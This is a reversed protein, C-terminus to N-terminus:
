SFLYPRAQEVSLIRARTARCYEVIWRFDDPHTDFRGPSVDVGHTYFILWGGNSCCDDVLSRVDDRRLQASYLNVSRLCALDIVGRNIGRRIARLSKYCPRLARKAGVTVAGLPYSFDELACGLGEEFFARNRQADAFGQAATVSTLPHHSFTHCGIQHGRQQLARCDEISLHDRRAGDRAADGAFTAAVYFTAGFGHQELMPAGNTLASYPVDDFTFSITPRDAPVTARLPYVNEYFVAKAARLTRVIM